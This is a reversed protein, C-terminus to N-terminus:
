VKIGLGALLAMSACPTTLLMDIVQVDDPSMPPLATACLVRRATPVLLHAAHLMEIGNLASGRGLEFGSLVVDWSGFWLLKVARQASSVAVAECYPSLLRLMDLALSANQEVLLVRKGRNTGVM